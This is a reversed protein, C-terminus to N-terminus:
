ATLLHLRPSKKLVPLTRPLWEIWGEVAGVESSPVCLWWFVSYTGTTVMAPLLTLAPFRPVTEPSRQVTGGGGCGAAWGRGCLLVGPLPQPSRGRGRSLWIKPVPFQFTYVKRIVSKGGAWKLGSSTDRPFLFYQCTQGVAAWGLSWLKNQDM